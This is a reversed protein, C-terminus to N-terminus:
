TDLREQQDGFFKALHERLRDVNCFPFATHEWLIYDLEDDTHIAGHKQAVERALDLYTM